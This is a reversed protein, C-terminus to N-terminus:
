ATQPMSGAGEGDPNHQPVLDDGDAAELGARFHIGCRATRSMAGMLSPYKLLFNPHPAPAAPTPPFSSYSSVGEGGLDKNCVCFGAFITGTLLVAHHKPGSSKTFVLNIMITQLLLM